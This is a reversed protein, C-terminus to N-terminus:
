LFLLISEQLLYYSSPIGCYRVAGRRGAWWGGRTLPQTNLLMFMLLASGKAWDEVQSPNFVPLLLAEEILLHRWACTTICTQM